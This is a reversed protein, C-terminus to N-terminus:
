RLAGAALTVPAGAALMVPAGSRASENLAALTAAQEVADERGFPLPEGGTIARSVRDLELRYVADEGAVATAARLEEDPTQPVTEAVAGRRLQVGADRCVWPDRVVITGTTGVIELEDRRPHELGVDFLGLVDDGAADVCRLTGAMAVDVGNDLVAEAHVRQPTGGFMRIGSVCYCGLDWIAGGGVEPRRRIDEPPASVSLTARVQQVRGVAGDAVLRRVLATRPHYRWMFGEAVVRGGVAAADFAATADAATTALPKECLVDKGAELAKVTWEAHFAIPLAVYVADVDSALLEDYSGYADPIGRVDAFSRAKAADRSAVAVFRTDASGQTARVVVDGIGATALLGWTVPMSM